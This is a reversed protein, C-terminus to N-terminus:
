TIYPGECVLLYGGESSTKRNISPPLISGRFSSMKLEDPLLLSEMEACNARACTGLLFFFGISM